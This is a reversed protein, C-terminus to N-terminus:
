SKVQDDSWAEPASQGIFPMFGFGTTPTNIQYGAMGMVSIDIRQGVLHSRTLTIGIDQGMKNMTGEMRVTKISMLKEIGGMAEINKNVVEDITQAKITQISLLSAIALISVQLKKM